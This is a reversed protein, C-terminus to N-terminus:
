LLGTATLENQIEKMILLIVGFTGICSRAAVLRTDCLETDFGGCVAAARWGRWVSKPFRKVLKRWMKRFKRAARRREEPELASFSKIFDHRSVHPLVGLRLMELQTQIDGKRM